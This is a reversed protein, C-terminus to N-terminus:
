DAFWETPNLAQKAKRIEFHCAYGNLSGSDGVEAIVASSSVNDNTKVFIESAHAYLTYYGGGHNIIICNGYGEIWDVFEVRGPAVARIPAGARAQIDIGNNFTVTGFRPHKSQGFAGVLKGDVPRQLKGKLGAFGGPPLGTPDKASARKRELEGILDKLREQAKELDAIAEKHQADDKRIRNLMAVRASKNKKLKDAESQQVERLAAVESLAEAVGAQEVELMQKRTSVEQILRADYEAVMRMFKYRRIKEAFDEGGMVFAWRREPGTIYMRRLRAALRQKQRSLAESEGTINSRLSDIQQVLLAEKTALGSLYKTSLAIEKDLHSLQKVVDTEKKKLEQSKARHQKIEDEIQKLRSKQDGIREELSGSSQACAPPAPSALFVWAFVAAAALISRRRSITRGVMIMVWARRM